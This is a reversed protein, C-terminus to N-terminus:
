LRNYLLLMDRLKRAEPGLRDFSRAIPIRWRWNDFQMMFLYLYLLAFIIYYFRPKLISPCISPILYTIIYTM